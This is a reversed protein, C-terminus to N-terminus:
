QSVLTRPNSSKNWTQISVSEIPDRDMIPVVALCLFSSSWKQELMHLWMGEAFLGGQSRRQGGVVKIGVTCPLSLLVQNKEAQKPLKSWCPPRSRCGAGGWWEQRGRNKHSHRDSNGPSQHLVLSLHKQVHFFWLMSKTGCPSTFCVFHFAMYMKLFFFFGFCCAVFGLPYEANGSFDLLSEEQTLFIEWKPSTTLIKKSLYKPWLNIKNDNYNDIVEIYLM